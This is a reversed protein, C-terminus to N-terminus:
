LKVKLKKYFKSENSKIIKVCKSDIFQDLDYLTFMNSKGIKRYLIENKSCLKYLSSKSIRLYDVAEDMSILRTKM